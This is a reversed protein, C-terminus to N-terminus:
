MRMYTRIAELLGLRIKALGVGLRRVMQAKCFPCIPDKAIPIPKITTKQIIKNARRTIITKTQASKAAIADLSKKNKLVNNQKRTLQPKKTRKLLGNKGLKFGM